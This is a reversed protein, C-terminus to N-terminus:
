FLVVSLNRRAGKMTDARARRLERGFCMLEVAFPGYLLVMAAALHAWAAVAIM